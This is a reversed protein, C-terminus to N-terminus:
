NLDRRRGNYRSSASQISLNLLKSISNRICTGAWWCSQTRKERTTTTEQTCVTSRYSRRVDQVVVFSFRYNNDDNDDISNDDADDAYFFDNDDAYGIDPVADEIVMDKLELQRKAVLSRQTVEERVQLEVFLQEFRAIFLVLCALFCIHIVYCSLNDIHNYEYSLGSFLFVSIAHLSCLGKRLYSITTCQPKTESKTFFRSWM